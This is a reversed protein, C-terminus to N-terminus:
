LSFLGPIPSLSDSLDPSHSHSSRTLLTLVTMEPITWHLEWLGASDVVYVVDVDLGGNLLYSTM